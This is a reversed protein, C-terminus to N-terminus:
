QCVHNLYQLLSNVDPAVIEAGAELFLRRHAAGSPGSLVICSLVKGKGGGRLERYQQVTRLDDMTDGVYVAYHFDMRERLLALTAPDPKRVGDDETVRSNEPIRERLGAQQMALAAENRTRGTLIGVPLRRPLLAADLLVTERRYCGEGHLYEPAFGYLQRCAEDGAYM